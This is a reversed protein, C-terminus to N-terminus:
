EECFPDESDRDSAATSAPTNQAQQLLEIVEPLLERRFAVGKKSPKFEGVGPTEQFWVRVNVLDFGKFEGTSVRVVEGANKRVEGVVVDSM